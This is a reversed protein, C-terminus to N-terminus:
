IHILSLPKDQASLTHAMAIMPTVGIGGGVLISRRAGAELPFLNRPVGIEVVTGESLREHAAVSGGRSNPDKLIGLRYVQRDAPNGCLSYQRVLGEGLHLDVHAGAEFPPLEGGDALALDLVLVGQGQSERRRVVVRLTEESM